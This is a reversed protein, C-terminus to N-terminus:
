LQRGMWQDFAYHMFVNTILPSIPFRSRHGGGLRGAWGAGASPYWAM